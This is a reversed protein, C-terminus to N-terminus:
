EERLQEEMKKTIESLIRENKYTKSADKIEILIKKLLPYKELKEKILDTEYYVVGKVFRINEIDLTDGLYLYQKKDGM